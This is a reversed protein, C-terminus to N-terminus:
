KWKNNEYTDKREKLYRFITELGSELQMASHKGALTIRLYANGNGPDVAYRWSHAVKVGMEELKKEMEPGSVRNDAPLWRYFSFPNGNVEPPRGWVREFCSEFRNNAAAALRRKKRVIEGAGGGSILEAYVASSLASARTGSVDGARFLPKRVLDGAVMFGASLGTSVSEAGSSIYVSRGPVHRSVPGQYDPDLDASFFAFPDNELLILSRRLIVGAIAKKRMEPMSSATPDSCSPMLYVGALPNKRHIRDLEEPIMGYRDSPVPVLIIGRLRAVELFSRSIFPETAVRDGPVFLASLALDVASRSGSVFFLHDGDTKLGLNRLWNVATSRYAMRTEYISTGMINEIDSSVAVKKVASAVIDNCQDFFADSGLDIVGDVTGGKLDPLFAQSPSSVYTGSGPVAYVLGKEQCMKYARTVTTMNVDLYDALDRQGPLKTGPSLRGSSIDAELMRTLTMYIPRTLNTRDPRWSMPMEPVNDRKNRLERDNEPFM